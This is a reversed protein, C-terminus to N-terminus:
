VHGARALEGLIQLQAAALFARPALLLYDARNTIDKLFGAQMRHIAPRFVTSTALYSRGAEVPFSAGTATAVLGTLWRPVDTTDILISARSLGEVSAQGTSGFSGELTGQLAVPKRPYRVAFKNLFVTSYAAGTDGVFEREMTWAVVSASWDVGDEGTIV